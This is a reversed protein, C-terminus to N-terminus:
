ICKKITEPNITTIKSFADANKETFSVYFDNSTM